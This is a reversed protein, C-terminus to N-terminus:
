RVHVDAGPDHQGRLEGAGRTSPRFTHFEISPHVAGATRPWPVYGYGTPEGPNLNYLSETVLSGDQAEYTVDVPADQAGDHRVLVALHSSWGSM